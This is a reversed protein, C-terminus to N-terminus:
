LLMSRTTHDGNMVTFSVILVSISSIRCHPLMEINWKLWSASGQSGKSEELSGIVKLWDGEITSEEGLNVRMLRLKLM